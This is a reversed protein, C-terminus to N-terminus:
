REGGLRLALALSFAQSAFRFREEDRYREVILHYGLAFDVGARRTATYTATFDAAQFVDVTAVRLPLGTGRPRPERYLPAFVGYPRAVVTFVPVSLRASVMAREHRAREVTVVPGLTTSFFAYGGNNGGSTYYHFSLTGQASLLGGVLWRTGSRPAGVARSLELHAWWRSTAQRPFGDSQTLGSRLTSVAGGVRLDVTRRSTRTTYGVELFTAAGSYRVPSAKDDRQALFLPGVVFTLRRGLNPPDQAASLPVLTTWALGAVVLPRLM